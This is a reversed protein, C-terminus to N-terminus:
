SEVGSSEACRSLVKILEEIVVPKSLFGDMGSKMCQERSEVTAQATMAVITVRRSGTERRRIEVAAEHGNMEPMQCDMFVLDYPLLELMELAERGNAAVDCRIGLKELM